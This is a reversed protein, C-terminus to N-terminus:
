RPTLAARGGDGGDPAGVSGALEARANGGRRFPSRMRLRSAIPRTSAITSSAAAPPQSALERIREGASIAERVAGGSGDGIRTGASCRTSEVSTTVRPVARKPDGCCSASVGDASFVSARM